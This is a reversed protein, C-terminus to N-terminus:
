VRERCSARGIQGAIISAAIMMGGTIEAQLALYAGTGLITIQAVLRVFKSAGSIWFNRDLAQSQVTLAPAQRRGWHLISESLMGMANIVQSNRALSEAAADAEAAQLGARGLRESTAKQNIVAILALALGAVVAIYGLDRHVLFIVGFYIPSLPADMLLLMVPSSIFGRVQHLSRIAQITGGEGARANNISSALVAAGLLAEMKTALRGLVQRRLIDVVSLIGMFALALASLMLLTELSRSTLVRDSIQFLYLPMTLMLLNVVVSFVTVAILNTRAVSRWADLPNLPGIHDRAEGGQSARPHDGSHIDPANIRIDVVGM